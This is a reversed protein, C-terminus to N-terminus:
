KNLISRFIEREIDDMLAYYDYDEDTLENEYLITSILIKFQIENLLVKM